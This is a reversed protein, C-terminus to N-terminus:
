VSRKNGDTPQKKGRRSQDTCSCELLRLCFLPWVECLQSFSTWLEPPPSSFYLASNFWNQLNLEPELTFFCIKQTEQRTGKVRSRWVPSAAEQLAGGVCCWWSLLWIFHCLFWSRGLRQPSPPHLKLWTLLHVPFVYVCYRVHSAISALPLTAKEFLLRIGASVGHAVDGPQLIRSQRRTTHFPVWGSLVSRCSARRRSVRDILM